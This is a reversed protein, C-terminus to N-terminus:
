IRESFSQAIIQTGMDSPHLGDGQLLDRKNGFEASLNVLKAGEEGALQKIRPNYSEVAGNFIAHSDYMPMVTAIVARTQNAKAAQIIARLNGIVSEVDAGGIADNAGYLILLGEPKHRALVGSVRGAGGGSREGCVGENIVTKGSLGALRAPYPAGAPVCLGQTISDGICVFVGKNNDGIDGGGGGGGGGGGSDCGLCLVLAIGAPIALLTSMM